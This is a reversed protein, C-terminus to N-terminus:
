NWISPSQLQKDLRCICPHEQSSAKLDIQLSGYSARRCWSHQPVSGAVPSLSLSSLSCGLEGWFLERRPDTHSWSWCASSWPAPQLLQLGEKSKPILGGFSVNPWPILLSSCTLWFSNSPPLFRFIVCACRVNLRVVLKLDKSASNPKWPCQYWAPVSAQSRHPQQLRASHWPSLILGWVGAAIAWVESVASLPINPETSHIWVPLDLLQKNHGKIHYSMRM